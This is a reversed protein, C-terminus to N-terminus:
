FGKCITNKKWKQQKCKRDLKIQWPEFESKRRDEEEEKIQRKYIGVELNLWSLTRSTPLVAEKGPSPMLTQSSTERQETAEHIEQISWNRKADRATFVPQFSSCCAGGKTRCRSLCWGTERTGPMRLKGGREAGEKMWGAPVARLINEGEINLCPHNSDEGASMLALKRYTAVSYLRPRKRFFREPKSLFM